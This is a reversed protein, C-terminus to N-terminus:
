YLTEINLKGSVSKDLSTSFAYSSAGSFQFEFALKSVGQQAFDLWGVPKNRSENSGFVRGDTISLITEM